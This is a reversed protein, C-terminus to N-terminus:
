LFKGSVPTVVPRKTVNAVTSNFSVNKMSWPGRSKRFIGRIEVQSINGATKLNSVCHSHKNATMSVLFTQVTSNHYIYNIQYELGSCNTIDIKQWSTM